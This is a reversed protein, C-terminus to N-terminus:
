GRATAGMMPLVEFTCTGSAVAPDTRGLASVEDASLAEVVALGWVGAPDLVPGFVVCTRGEILRLWYAAHDGMVGREQDTMDFAFTPRPAVLRYVFFQKESM